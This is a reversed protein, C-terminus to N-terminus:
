FFYGSSTAPAEASVFIDANTMALGTSLTAFQVQATGGKGDGDFLLAGTKNNYIFRDGQDRAATGIAFQNPTIAAGNTLDYGFFNAYVTITDDAVVLETITSVSESYSQFVFNNAGFQCGRYYIIAM